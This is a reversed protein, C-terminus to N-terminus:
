CLAPSDPAVPRGTVGDYWIMMAASYWAAIATAVGQLTADLPLGVLSRTGAEWDAVRAMHYTPAFRFALWSLVGAGITLVLATPLSAVVMRASIRVAHFVGTRGVVIVFPTLALLLSVPLGLYGVVIGMPALAPGAIALAAGGGVLAGIASMFVGLRWWTGWGPALFVRWRPRDRRVAEWLVRLYGATTVAGILWPLLFRVPSILLDYAGYTRPEGAPVRGGAGYSLALLFGISNGLDVRPPSPVAVGAWPLNRMARQSREQMEKLRPDDRHREIRAADWARIDRGWGTDHFILYGAGRADVMGLVGMAVAALV